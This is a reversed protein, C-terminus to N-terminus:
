SQRLRNRAETLWLHLRDSRKLESNANMAEEALAVASAEIADRLSRLGDDTDKRVGDADMLGERKREFIRDAQLSKEKMLLQTSKWLEFGDCRDSCSTAVLAATGCAVDDNESYFDQETLIHSKAFLYLRYFIMMPGEM